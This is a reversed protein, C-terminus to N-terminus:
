KDRKERRAREALAREEGSDKPLYYRKGILADPLYTEGAALGGEDHPYRYGEGYGWQQMAGTAANRLKMPVPLSGHEKVDAQASQWAM